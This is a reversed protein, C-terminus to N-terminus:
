DNLRDQDAGRRRPASIPPASSASCSIPCLKLRTAASPQAHEYAFRAAVGFRQSLAFGVAILGIVLRIASDPVHAAILWALGIGAIQGPLMVKLIRTDWKRWYSWVTVAARTVLLPMLLGVAQMPPVVTAILPAAITGVGSFGGKSLGLLIVAPIAV